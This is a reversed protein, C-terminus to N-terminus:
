ENVLIIVKDSLYEISEIDEGNRKLLEICANASEYKEESTM